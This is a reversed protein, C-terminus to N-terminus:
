KHRRRRDGVRRLRSHLIRSARQVLMAATTWRGATALIADRPARLPCKEAQPVSLYFGILAAVILLHQDSDPLRRARTVAQDTLHKLRCTTEDWSQYHFTLNHQGTAGDEDLDILSDLMTHLAGIWPFYVAALAEARLYRVTPDAAAAMLAFVLLSSGASAGIEWWRLDAGAVTTLDDAWRAFRHSEGHIHDQYDVIREVARQTHPLVASFSPLRVFAARCTEVLSSLYGNDVLSEHRPYYRPQARHPAVAMLLAQHLQRGNADTTVPQEAVADAYDYAIQFAVVANIVSARHTRPVFAAFAAAGELNGRETRLATLAVGRLTPDPITRANREWNKIQHHAAPFASLWYRTAASLFTPDLGERYAAPANLYLV